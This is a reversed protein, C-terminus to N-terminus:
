ESAEIGLDRKHHPLLEWLRPWVEAMQEYREKATAKVYAVEAKWDRPDQVVREM